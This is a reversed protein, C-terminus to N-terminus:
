FNGIIKLIQTTIEEASLNETNLMLKKNDFREYEIHYNKRIEEITELKVRDDAYGDRKKIRELLNSEPADLFITFGSNILDHFEFVADEIKLYLDKLYNSVFMNSFVRGMLLIDFDSILRFSNNDREKIIEKGLKECRKQLIATQFTFATLDERNAHFDDLLSTKEIEDEIISYGYNKLNNLLTTKGSGPPGVISIYTNQNLTNM